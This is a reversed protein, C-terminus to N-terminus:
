RVTPATRVKGPPPFFFVNKIINDWSSENNSYNPTSPTTQPAFIIKYGRIGTGGKLQIETFKSALM